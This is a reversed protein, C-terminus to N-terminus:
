GSLYELAREVCGDMDASTDLDLKPHLIPEFSAKVKHYLELNRNGAPHEPAAALRAAAVDDHCALHLVKWASGTEEAARMVRMLQAHRAFTRGDIFLYAPKRHEVLYAAANLIAEICLDDQEATYDTMAGPFLASRVADKDLVVGDLRKALERALTSKGTAPLGAMLV